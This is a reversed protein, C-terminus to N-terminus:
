YLSKPIDKFRIYAQSPVAGNYLGYLLVRANRDHPALPELSDPMDLFEINKSDRWESNADLWFHPLESPDLFEYKKYFYIMKDIDKDCFAYYGNIVQVARKDGGDAKDINTALESESLYHSRCANSPSLVYRLLVNPDLLLYCVFFMALAWIIATKM